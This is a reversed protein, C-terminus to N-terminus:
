GVRFGVNKKGIEGVRPCQQECDGATGIRGRQQREGRAPAFTQPAARPQHRDGNIM